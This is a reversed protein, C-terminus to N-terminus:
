GTREQQAEVFNLAHEIANSLSGIAVRGVVDFPQRAIRLVRFPQADRQRNGAEGAILEVDADLFTLQHDATTLLVVFAPLIEVAADGRALELSSEHQCVAHLYQAGIQPVPQQRDIQHPRLGFPDHLRNDDVLLLSPSSFWSEVANLTM